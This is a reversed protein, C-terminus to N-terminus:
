RMSMEVPEIKRRLVVGWQGVAWLADSCKARVVTYLDNDIDTHQLKWTAGGDTSHVITGVAGVAYVERDSLVLISYLNETVGSSQPEWTFGGGAAWGKRKSIFSVAHLDYGTHTEHFKWYEGANVTRLVVGSDGVAWGHLDDM